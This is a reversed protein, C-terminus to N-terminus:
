NKILEVWGKYPDSNDNLTIIYFYTSSTFKSEDGKLPWSIDLNNYGDMDFLKNGWRNFIKVNNKPFETINEIYWIDNNGDGNPTLGTFITINCPNNNDEVILNKNLTSDTKVIGGITYTVYVKVSYNGPKLSDVSSCDNTPCLIAPKWFYKVNYNQINTTFTVSINGDNKGKCSINSKPIDGNFIAAVSFPQLFGQTIIINNSPGFTQTFPEGINDSLYVGNIGAPYHMGASNIVQPSITQAKIVGCILCFIIYKVKNM